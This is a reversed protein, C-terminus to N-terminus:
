PTKWALISSYAATEEELPDEQGLPRVWTEQMEQMPPLNKVDPIYFDGPLGLHAPVTWEYEIRCSIGNYSDVMIYKDIRYNVSM